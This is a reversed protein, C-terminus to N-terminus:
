LNSVDYSDAARFLEPEELQLAVAFVGDSLCVVIRDGAGRRM